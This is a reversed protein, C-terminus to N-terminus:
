GGFAIFYGDVGPQYYNKIRKALVFGSKLFFGLVEERTVATLWGGMKKTEELVARGIGKGQYGPLLGFDVIYKRGKGQGELIVDGAYKGDVEIRYVTCAAIVAEWTARDWILYPELFIEFQRRYYFDLDPDLDKRLTVKMDPRKREKGPKGSGISEGLDEAFL